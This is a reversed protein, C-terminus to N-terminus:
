SFSMKQFCDKVCVVDKECYKKIDNINDQTYFQDHVQSGNMADKPSDVGLICSMLDLSSHTQGWGGFSFIDSIDMHSNEWPKRNIAFLIPSPEMRQVLMRKGLFPIDFNKITHGALKMGKSHANNLVKNTNKLIEEEAGIFSQLVFEEGKFAGFSVCVVRGFEPHLSSKLNWLEEETANELEPGSNKRLWVCRKAWLDALRSDNILLTDYTEYSGATEIDFYLLTKLTASSIM